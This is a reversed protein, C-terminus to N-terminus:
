RMAVTTILSRTYILWQSKWHTKITTSTKRKPVAWTEMSEERSTRSSRSVMLGEMIKRSSHSWRMGISTTPLVSLVVFVVSFTDKQFRSLCLGSDLDIYETADDSKASAEACVTTTDGDYGCSKVKAETAERVAQTIAKSYRIPSKDCSSLILRM